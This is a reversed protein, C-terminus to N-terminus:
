GRFQRELGSDLLIYKNQKLCLKEIYVKRAQFESQLDPQGSSVSMKVDRDVCFGM